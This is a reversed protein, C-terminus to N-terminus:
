KATWPIQILESGSRYTIRLRTLDEQSLQLMVANGQTLAQAAFIGRNPLFSGDEMWTGLEIRLDLVTGKSHLLYQPAAPDLVAEAFRSIGSIDADKFPLMHLQGIFEVEEEPFYSDMLLGPLREYPIEALVIGMSQPAIEYPDFYFCLGTHTLYWNQVPTNTHFLTAISETYDEYLEDAQDKLVEAIQEALADASFDSVLIDQLTLHKGTHMDYNFALCSEGSRETGDYFVQTGALSLVQQDLRTAAYDIDCFYPDWGEGASYGESAEALAGQAAATLAGTRNSFDEAIASGVAHDGMFVQLSVSQVRYLVTGDAAKKQQSSPLLSVATFPNHYSIAPITEETPQTPAQTELPLSTEPISETQQPKDIDDTIELAPLFVCGTLLLCLCLFLPIMHKM